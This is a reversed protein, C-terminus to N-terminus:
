LALPGLVGSTALVEAVASTSVGPKCVLLCVLFSRVVGAPARLRALPDLTDLVGLLDLLELPGFPGIGRIDSIGGTSWNLRKRRRLGFDM